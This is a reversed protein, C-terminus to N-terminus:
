RAKGVRVHQLLTAIEGSRQDRLGQEAKFWDEEPSGDPCGREQWLAHALAAIQEPLPDTEVAKAKKRAM